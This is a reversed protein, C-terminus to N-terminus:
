GIFKDTSGTPYISWTANNDVKGNEFLKYPEKSFVPEGNSLYIVETPGNIYANDLTMIPVPYYATLDYDGWGSLTV